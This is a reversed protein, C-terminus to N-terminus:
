TILEKQYQLLKNIIADRRKKDSKTPIEKDTWRMIMGIETLSIGYAVFYPEYADWLQGNTARNYHRLDLPDVGAAILLAGIPDVLTHHAGDIIILADRGIRPQAAIALCVAPLNM